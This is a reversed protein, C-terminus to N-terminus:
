LEPSGDTVPVTLDAGDLWRALQRSADRAVEIWSSAPRAAAHWPISWGQNSARYFPLCPELM